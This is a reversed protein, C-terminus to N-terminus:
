SINEVQYINQFFRVVEPKLTVFIWTYSPSEDICQVTYKISNLGITKFKTAGERLIDLRCNSTTM